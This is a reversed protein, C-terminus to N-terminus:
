RRPEHRQAKQHQPSLWPECSSSRSRSSVPSLEGPRIRKVPEAAHLEAIHNSGHDGTLTEDPSRHPLQPPDNAPREVTADPSQLRQAQTSGAPIPVKRAPLSSLSSFYTRTHPSKRMNTTSSAGWSQSWETRRPSTASSRIAASRQEPTVVNVATAGATAHPIETLSEANSRGATLLVRFSEAAVHAGGPYGCSNAVAAACGAAAHQPYGMVVLRAALEGVELLGASGNSSNGTQALGLNALLARAGGFTRRAFSRLEQLAPGDRAELWSTKPCHAELAWLDARRLKGLGSSDLGRFLMQVNGQFGLRRVGREFEVSTAAMRRGPDIRSWAMDLDLGVEAWLAEAFQQLNEAEEPDIDSLRIPTVDGDPRMNAWVARVEKAFGLARCAASFEAQSVRGVGRSDLDQTWARLVSGRLQRLCATFRTLPTTHAVSAPKSMRSIKNPSPSRGARRPRRLLPPEPASCKHLQELEWECPGEDDENAGALIRDQVAVQEMGSSTAAKQRVNTGNENRCTLGDADCQLQDMGSVWGHAVASTEKTSAAEAKAGACNGPAANCREKKRSSWREHVKRSDQSPAKMSKSSADKFVNSELSTLQDTQGPRPEAAPRCQLLYRQAEQLRMGEYQMLYALIVVASCAGGRVCHVLVRHRDSSRRAADIFNLAEPLHALLDQNEVNTLAYKKYFFRLGRKANFSEAATRVSEELSCQHALNLVHTVGVDGTLEQVSGAALCGSIFLWPFVKSAHAGGLLEEMSDTNTFADVEINKHDSSSCGTSSNDTNDRCRQVEALPKTEAEMYAKSPLELLPLTADSTRTPDNTAWETSCAEASQPQQQVQHNGHATAAMALDPCPSEKHTLSGSRIEALSAASSSSGGMFQRQPLHLLAKPTDLEQEPEPEPGSACSFSEDVVDLSTQALEENGEIALVSVRQRFTVTKERGPESRCYSRPAQHIRPDAEDRSAAAGAASFNCDLNSDSAFKAAVSTSCQHHQQGDQYSDSLSFDKKLHQLHNPNDM